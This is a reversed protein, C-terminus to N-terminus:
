LGFDHPLSSPDEVFPVLRDGERRHTFKGQQWLGQVELLDDGKYYFESGLGHRQGDCQMGCFTIRGESDTEVLLNDDKEGIERVQTDLHSDRMQYKVGYRLVPVREDLDDNMEPEEAVWGSFHRSLPDFAGSFRMDWEIWVFGRPQDDGLGVVDYDHYEEVDSQSWYSHHFHKVVLKASADNALIPLKKQLRDVRDEPCGEGMAKYCAIAEEYRGLCELLFGKRGKPQDQDSVKRPFAEDSYPKDYPPMESLDDPDIENAFGMQIYALERISFFRRAFRMDDENGCPFKGELAKRAKETSRLYENERAIREGLFCDDVNGTDFHVAHTVAMSCAREIREIMKQAEKKHRWHKKAIEKFAAIWQNRCDDVAEWYGRNLVIQPDM